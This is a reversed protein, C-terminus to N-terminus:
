YHRKRGLGAAAQLRGIIGAIAVSRYPQRVEQLGSTLRLGESLQLLQRVRTCVLSVM